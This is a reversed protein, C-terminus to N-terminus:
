MPHELPCKLKLFDNSYHNKLFVANYYTSYKTVMQSVSIINACQHSVIDGLRKGILSGDGAYYYYYDFKLVDDFKNTTKNHKVEKRICTMVFEDNKNVHSFYHCMESSKVIDPLHLIRLEGESVSHVPKKFVHVRPDNYRELVTIYIDGRKDLVVNNIHYLDNEIRKIPTYSWTFSGGPNRNYYFCNVVDPGYVLFQNDDCFKVSCATFALIAGRPMIATFNYHRNFISFRYSSIKTEPHFAHKLFVADGTKMNIDFALIREGESRNVFHFYKMSSQNGKIDTSKLQTKSKSDLQVLCSGEIQFEDGELPDEKLSYIRELDDLYDTKMEDGEFWKKAEPETYRPRKSPPYLTFILRPLPLQLTPTSPQNAM